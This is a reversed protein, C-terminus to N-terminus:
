PNKDHATTAARFAESSSVFGSGNNDLVTGDPAILRYRRPSFKGEHWGSIDEVKFGMAEIKAIRAIRLQTRSDKQGM